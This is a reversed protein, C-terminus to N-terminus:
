GAPRAFYAEFGPLYAQEPTALARLSGGATGCCDRLLRGLDLGDWLTSRLLCFLRTFSHSWDTMFALFRLLVYLLLAM